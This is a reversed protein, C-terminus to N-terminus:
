RSEYEIIPSYIVQGIRTYARVQYFYNSDKEVKDTFTTTNTIIDSYPKITRKNSGRFLIYGKIDTSTISNWELRNTLKRRKSKLNLTLQESVREEKYHRAYVPDSYLSKNGVSDLAMLQYLYSSNKSASRDTYRFTSPQLLNVNLQQFSPNVTSDSRYINYGALDEDVNSIWEVVIGESNYSIQKIFPKEPPTVDPLTSVAFASPKSRNFSTDVAIVYYYFENKVNKPLVQEYFNTDLPDANMLLYDAQATNDVTRFVYYGWLDSELNAKWRLRFKGTDAEIVLEEPPSPPNVDQVEVFARESKSINGAHDAAEIFYYYPGPLTLIESYVTDSLSLTTQSVKEFPGESKRSRFVNLEKLDADPILHWKLTVRMSDADGELDYPALPPTTDDFVLSVSESIGTTEGFYDLGELYFTYRQNEEFGRKRFMPRPYILKGTSDPVMSLMVPKENLKSEFGTYDRQYINVAYFKEQAQLWNINVERGKQFVEVGEVGSDKKYLGAPIIKSEAVLIENAESLRTVKYQYTKGIQASEDQFYIGIFEAFPNSQFSKLVVNFLMFDEQLDEPSNNIIDEFFELENDERIYRSDITPLKLVPTPTLLNWNSSGAERRYVYFGEENIFPKSFWKLEITGNSSDNDPHNRVFLYSDQAVAFLSATFLICAFAARM